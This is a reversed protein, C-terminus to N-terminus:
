LRSEVGRNFEALAGEFRGFTLHENAGSELGAQISEGIEFDETLTELTIAHNKAWHALDEESELREKPALTNIRIRTSSASLPELQVWAFHDAQVLFQNIPFISYLVQAHDRLRWSSEPQDALESLSRRALISRM